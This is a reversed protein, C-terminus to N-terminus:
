FKSVHETLQFCMVSFMHEGLGGLRVSGVCEPSRQSLSWGASLLVCILASRLCAGACLQEFYLSAADIDSTGSFLEYEGVTM